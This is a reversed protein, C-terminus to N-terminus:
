VVVFESDKFNRCGLDLLVFPAHALITEHRCM